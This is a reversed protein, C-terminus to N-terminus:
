EVLANVRNEIRWWINEFKPTKMIYMAQALRTIHDADAKEAIECILNEYHALMEDLEDAAYIKYAGFQRPRFSAFM